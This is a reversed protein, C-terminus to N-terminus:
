DFKVVTNPGPREDLLLFQRNGKNPTWPTKGLLGFDTYTGLSGFQEFVFPLGEAGLPSPRDALHLHLHPGTTQGTFGLSAIVEGKEVRQGAKVRLSGPKLHEYFVYKGSDIKLCVYNGTAKEAPIKPHDSLTPSEPFDDKSIIVVGDSVALVDLGYGYWNTIQDNNGKAYKGQEDLLMFDIAFRGPICAQGDVTYIVKRHGREWSPEYLAVWPGGKLPPGFVTPSQSLLNVSAGSVTRVQGSETPLFSYELLHSLHSITQGGSISLELYLIASLGPYLVGKREFTLQGVPTIQNLLEKGTLSLVETSDLGNFVALKNIALTDAAFNTIFLEYYASQKGDITVLQPPHLVRIDFTTHYEQANTRCGWILIVATLYLKIHHM